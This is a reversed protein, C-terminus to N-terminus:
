HKVSFRLEEGTGLCKSSLSFQNVESGRRLCTHTFHMADNVGGGDKLHDLVVCTSPGWGPAEM